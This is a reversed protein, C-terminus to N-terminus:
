YSVSDKKFYNQVGTDNLGEKWFLQTSGKRFNAEVIREIKPRGATHKGQSLGQPFKICDKGELVLEWGHHNLAM